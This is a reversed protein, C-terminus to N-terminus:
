ILSFSVAELQPSGGLAKLEELDKRMEGSEEGRGKEGKANGRRGERISM